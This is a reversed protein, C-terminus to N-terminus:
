RGKREFWLDTPTPAPIPAVQYKAMSEPQIGEVVSMSPALNPSKFLNGGAFGAKVRAVNRAEDFHEIGGDAM